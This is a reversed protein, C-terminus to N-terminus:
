GPGLTVLQFPSCHSVPSIKESSGSNNQIPSNATSYPTVTLVTNYVFTNGQGACAVGIDSVSTIGLDPCFAGELAATQGADGPVSSNGQGRGPISVYAGPVILNAFDLTVIRGAYKAYLQCTALRPIKQDISQSSDNAIITKASVIYDLAFGQADVATVPGTHVAVGTCSNQSFCPESEPLGYADVNSIGISEPKFVVIPFPGQAPPPPPPGGGGGAASAVGALFPLLAVGILLKKMMVEMLTPEISCRSFAAAHVPCSHSRGLNEYIRELNKWFFELKALLLPNVKEYAYARRAGTPFGILHM